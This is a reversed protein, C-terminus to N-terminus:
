ALNEERNNSCIPLISSVSRVSNVPKSFFFPFVWLLPFPSSLLHYATYFLHKSNYFQYYLPCKLAYYLCSNSLVLFDPEKSHLSFSNQKLNFAIGSIEPSSVPSFIILIKSIRQPQFSFVPLIQYFIYISPPPSTVINPLLTPILNQLLM